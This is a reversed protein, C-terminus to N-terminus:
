VASRETMARALRPLGASLVRRDSGDSRAMDAGSATCALPGAARERGLTAKLKARSFRLPRLSHRTIVEGM